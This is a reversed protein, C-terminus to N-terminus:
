KNDKGEENKGNCHFENPFNDRYIECNFFVCMIGGNSDRQIIAHIIILSVYQKKMIKEKTIM